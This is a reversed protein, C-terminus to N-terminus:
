ALRIDQFLDTIGLLLEVENGCTDHTIKLDDMRPGPQKKYLADLVKHRDKMNLSRAYSMGLGTTLHETGDADILAVLCRSLLLSDREADVLKRDDFVALQDSGNALRVRAKRGKSLELEFTSDEPSELERLPIDDLPIVLDSKDGCSPCVWEELEITDGYTARRIGIILADRDGVLVSKLTKKTQAPDESGFRIVGCELLANVFHAMSGRKAQVSRALIEEHEGTLERVEATRIVYDGRVIGGPLEVQTDPPPVPDPMKSSSLTQNVANMAKEADELSGGFPNVFGEDEAALVEAPDAIITGDQRTEM